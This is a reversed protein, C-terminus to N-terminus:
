QRRARAVKSFIDAVSANRIFPTSNINHHKSDDHIEAELDACSTFVRRIRETAILGFFREVSNLWSASTSMSDLDKVATELWVLASPPSM